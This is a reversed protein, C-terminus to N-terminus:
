VSDICRTCNVCKGEVCLIDKEVAIAENIEALAAMRQVNIGEEVAKMLSAAFHELREIEDM